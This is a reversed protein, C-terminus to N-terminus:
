PKEFVVMSSNPAGANEAARKGYSSYFMFRVILNFYQAVKTDISLLAKLGAHGNLTKSRRVMRKHSGNRM